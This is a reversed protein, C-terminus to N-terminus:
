FKVRRPIVIISVWFSIAVIESTLVSGKTGRVSVTTPSYWEFEEDQLVGTCGLVM